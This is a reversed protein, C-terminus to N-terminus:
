RIFLRRFNSYWHRLLYSFQVPCIRITRPRFGTSYMELGWEFKFACVGGEIWWVLCGFSLVCRETQAFVCSEASTSHVLAVCTVLRRKNLWVTLQLSTRVVHYVDVESIL